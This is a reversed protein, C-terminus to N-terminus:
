NHLSTARTARKSHSSSPNQQANSNTSVDASPNHSTSLIQNFIKPINLKGINCNLAPENRRIHMVKRAERSVQKRDQDTIKFQSINAKTHNHTTCHQFIARTSSTNQEKVRSELCRSSEGIYSSNCNENACAWQYAVDSHLQTPINDKPHMLLTKLTNCGKFIIQVETDKLIKRFEKSQGQIYADTVFSHKTTEQNTAQDM